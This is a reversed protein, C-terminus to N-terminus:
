VPSGQHAGRQRRDNKGDKISRNPGFMRPRKQRWRTQVAKKAKELILQEALGEVGILEYHAWVDPPRLDWAEQLGVFEESLKFEHLWDFARAFHSSNYRPGQAVNIQHKPIGALKLLSAISKLLKEVDARAQKAM